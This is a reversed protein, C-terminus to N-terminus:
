KSKERTLMLNGGPYLSADTKTILKITDGNITGEHWITTGNVTLNFSIKDGDVKGDVIEIDEGRPSKVSGTLKAGDQRFTYTIHFTDGNQGPMEGSWTGTLDAAFAAASTLVIALAACLSFLRIM